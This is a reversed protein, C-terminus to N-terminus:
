QQGTKRNRMYSAMKGFSAPFASRFRTTMKNYESILEEATLDDLTKLYELTKELTSTHRDCVAIAKAMGAIRCLYDSYFCNYQKKLSEIEARTNLSNLTDRLKDFDIYSAEHEHLDSLMATIDNEANESENNM